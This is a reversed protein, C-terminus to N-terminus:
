AMLAQQGLKQSRSAVRIDLPIESYIVVLDDEHDGWSRVPPFYQRVMGGGLGSMRQWEAFRREAEERYNMVHCVVFATSEGDFAFQEAGANLYHDKQRHLLACVGTSVWPMKKGQAPCRLQNAEALAMSIVARRGGRKRTFRLGPDYMMDIVHQPFIVQLPEDRQRKM